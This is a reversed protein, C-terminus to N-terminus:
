ETNREHFGNVDVWDRSGEGSYLQKRKRCSATASQARSSVVTRGCGCVCDNNAPGARKAVAAALVRGMRIPVGNGIAKFKATKSWGPLDIPKELGQKRCHDPYDVGSRTKTTVAVPPRGKRRNRTCDNVRVPRIVHGSRSGFQVHRSRLQVGGCEFDPIPIRQVSYGDVRVDPVGPVNEILFWEPECELIVRCTQRLMERSNIVSPHNPDKRYANAVSFGQCPPGATIGSIRGRVGAFDRIDGGTVTDPGDCVCFGEAAFARDLLGVGPFLSLVLESSPIRSEGAQSGHVLTLDRDHSEPHAGDIFRSNELALTEFILQREWDPMKQYNALWRAAKRKARGRERYGGAAALSVLPTAVELPEAAPERQPTVLDFNSWIFETRLDGRTTVTKKECKWDSLARAYRRSYYSSIMVRCDLERILALLRDHQSGTLEFGYISKKVRTEEPYPPDLYILWTHDLENAHEELWRIGCAVACEVNDAALKMAPADRDLDLLVTRGSIPPKNRFISANGAFMEGFNDHVPMQGVIWQWVGAGGKGGPYSGDKAIVGAADGSEANSCGTQIQRQPVM